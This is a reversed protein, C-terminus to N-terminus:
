DALEVRKNKKVKLNVVKGDTFQRQVILKCKGDLIIDEAEEYSMTNGLEISQLRVIGVLQVMEFRSLRTLGCTGLSYPNM